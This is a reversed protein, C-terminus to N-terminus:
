IDIKRFPQPYGLTDFKYILTTESHKITKQTQDEFANNM